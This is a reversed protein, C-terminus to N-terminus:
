LRISGFFKTPNYTKEMSSPYKCSFFIIRDHAYVVVVRGVLGQKGRQSFKVEAGHHGNIVTPEAPHVEIGPQSQAILVAYLGLAAVDSTPPADVLEGAMYVAGTNSVDFADAQYSGFRRQLPSPPFPMLVSSGGRLSVKNSFHLSQQPPAHYPQPKPQQRLYADEDYTGTSPYDSQPANNIMVIGIVLASVVAAIIIGGKSKEKPPPPGSARVRTQHEGLPNSVSPVVIPSSEPPFQFQAAPTQKVTTSPTHSVVPNAHRKPQAIPQITPVVYPSPGRDIVTRAGQIASTFEDASSFRDCPNKAMARSIVLWMKGSIELQRPPDCHSIAYAISEPSGGAFPQRGSLMEYLLVGVSYLDARLDIQGTSIEEPALYGWHDTTAPQPAGLQADGNPRLHINEPRVDGHVKHNAHAISLAHLVSEAIDAARDEPLSRCANLQSRLSTDTALDM